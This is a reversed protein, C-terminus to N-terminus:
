GKAAPKECISRRSVKCSTDSWSKQYGHSKEGMMVCDDERWNDPEKYNWYSLSENLPSGDVWLWRGQEASDTLGIWFKDEHDTMIRRVKKRLFEQEERSDIKVLDGGKARCDDRSKTWSSKNTSFYYCKGGHHEWGEECKSCPDGTVEPPQPCVPQVTSCPKAESDRKTVCLAVVAAALLASLVLLALREPTVKSRTSKVNQQSGDPLEESTTQSIRVDSYTLDALSSVPEPGKTEMTGRKFKVDSYVIEAEPM